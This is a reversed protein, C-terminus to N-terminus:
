NSVDEYNNDRLPYEVIDPSNAEEGFICIASLALLLIIVFFPKLM